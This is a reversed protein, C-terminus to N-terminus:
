SRDSPFLERRCAHNHKLHRNLQHEEWFEEGCGYCMFNTSKRVEVHKGFNSGRQRAPPAVIKYVWDDIRGDNELERMCYLRRNGKGAVFYKNASESWYVEIRQETLDYFGMDTEHNSIGGIVESLLRGCEFRDWIWHHCFRIKRAKLSVEVERFEEYDDWEEAPFEEPKVFYRDAKEFMPQAEVFMGWKTEPPTDPPPPARYPQYGDYPRARRNRVADEQEQLNELERVQKSTHEFMLRAEELALSMNRFNAENRLATKGAEDATTLADRWAPHGYYGVRNFIHRAVDYTEDARQRSSEVEKGKYYVSMKHRDIKESWEKKEERM